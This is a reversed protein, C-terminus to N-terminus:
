GLVLTTGIPYVFRKGAKKSREEVSCACSEGIAHSIDDDLAKVNGGYVERTFQGQISSEKIVEGIETDFVDNTGIVLHCEEDFLDGCRIVIESDCCRMKTSIRERRRLFFIYSVIIAGIWMLAYTWPRSIPFNSDAISFAWSVSEVVLWLGGFVMLVTKTWLIVKKHRM